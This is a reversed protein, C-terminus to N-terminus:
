GCRSARRSSCRTATPRRGAPPARPRSLSHSPSASLAFSLLARPAHVTCPSAIRRCFGHTRPHHANPTCPPPACMRCSDDKADASCEIINKGVGRSLMTTRHRSAVDADAEKTVPATGTPCSVTPCSPAPPCSQSAPCQPCSPFDPCRPCTPCRSVAKDVASQIMGESPGSSCAPCAPCRAAAAAAVKHLDACPSVRPYAVTTVMVGALFSLVISFRWRQLMRARFRRDDHDGEEAM